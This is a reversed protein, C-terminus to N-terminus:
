VLGLSSFCTTCPPSISFSKPKGPLCQLKTGFLLFTDYWAPGKCLVLDGLAVVSSELGASAIRM